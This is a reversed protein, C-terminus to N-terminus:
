LKNLLENLGEETIEHKGEYSITQHPIKHEALVQDQNQVKKSKLHPDASSYVLWTNFGQFIERNIKLDLDPPFLGAWLVLNKISCNGNSIWRCVTAAGQSFGLVNVDVESKKDYLLSHYLSDLYNVYDKIDNLRDEKTMWSAGVKGSYGKLYFRSLAEPAIIFREKSKIPKFNKLFHPALDGYGHCVFWVETTHDDLAGLTFYRATKATTIIGENM